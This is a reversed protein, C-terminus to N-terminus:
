IGGSVFDFALAQTQIESISRGLDDAHSGDVTDADGATAAYDAEDAIGDGDSDVPQPGINSV